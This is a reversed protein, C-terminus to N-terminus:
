EDIAKRLLRELDEEQEKEQELENYDWPEDYFQLEEGKDGYSLYWILYGISPDDVLKVKTIKKGEIKLPHKKLYEENWKTTSGYNIVYRTGGFFYELIKSFM